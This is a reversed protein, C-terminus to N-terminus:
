ENLLVQERQQHNSLYLTQLQGLGEINIMNEQEPWVDLLAAHQITLAKLESQLKTEQYIWIFSREIEHGVYTLELSQDHDDTINFRRMVYEAFQARSAPNSLIDNGNGFLTQTAHEADHLWFRHAIELMGTNSNFLVQTFAAKQQHALSPAAVCLAWLFATAICKNLM